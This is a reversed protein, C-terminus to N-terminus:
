NCSLHDGQRRERERERGQARERERERGRDTERVRERRHERERTQRGARSQLLQLYRGLVCM